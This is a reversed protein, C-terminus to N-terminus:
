SEKGAYGMSDVHDTLRMVEGQRRVLLVEGEFFGRLSRLASPSDSHPAGRRKDPAGMVILHIAPQSRVFRLVEEYFPGLSLFIELSVREQQSQEVVKDLWKRQRKPLEALSVDEQRSRDESSPLVAMLVLSFGLRAALQVAYSAARSPPSHFDVALLMRKTMARGYPASHTGINIDLFFLYIVISSIAPASIKTENQFLLLSYEPSDAGPLCSAHEV